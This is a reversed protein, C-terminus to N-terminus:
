AKKSRFRVAIASLNGLLVLAIIIMHGIGTATNRMPASDLTRAPNAVELLESYWAAGALGELLGKLQGSDLYNYAEPITISTCGHVLPPIYEASQFFQVYLNFMGALGTVEGVLVIQKFDKIGKFAPLDSLRTGEADKGFVEALNEAKPISQIFLATGARYGLNVWDVGYEWREGPMESTLKKALRKPIADLFDVAQPYLSFVAVPVRRRMLHEMLVEAQVENEARTSPGFDFALLAIKGPGPPIAEVLQYLKDAAKMRSPPLSYEFIIPLALCLLVLGYVIRRDLAAFSFAM